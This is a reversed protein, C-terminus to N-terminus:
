DARRAWDKSLTRHLLSGDSVQQFTTDDVQILHDGHELRYHRSGDGEDEQWCDVYREVGDSDRVVFHEIRRMYSNGAIEEPRWRASGWGRIRAM